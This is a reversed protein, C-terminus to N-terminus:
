YGREYAPDEGRRQSSQVDIDDAVRWRIYTGIMVVGAAYVVGAVGIGLGLLVFPRTPDGSDDESEQFAVMIGVLPSIAGVIWGFSEVIAAARFAKTANERRTISKRNQSQNM